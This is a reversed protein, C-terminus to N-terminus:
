ALHLDQPRLRYLPLHRRRRQHVRQRQRQNRHQRRLQLDLRQGAGDIALNVPEGLGGGSYGNSPSLANGSNSFESIDNTYSNVVWVNGGGDIAMESAGVFGGGTYGASPSVVTGSSNVKILAGAGVNNIGNLWIDGAGDIAVSGGNGTSYTTETGFPVFKLLSGGATFWANGLGDIAPQGPEANINFYSSFSYAGANNLLVAYTNENVCYGYQNCSSFYNPVWVYNSPTIAIGTLDDQSIPSAAFGNAGSLIAGTPSLKTLTNKSSYPNNAAWANGYGDIAIYGPYGLGGGTFNIAITWDNPQTYAATTTYPTKAAALSFINAVNAGPNHAINIAASATDTPQTGSTGAFLANTFLTYCTTPNTPGTITGTTNICSALINALTIIEDHPVTGNGAPTTTNAAGTGINALNTANAFANAIGTQALATGSSSVHTADSAFGAMAYAAAVTSIENISIYPM